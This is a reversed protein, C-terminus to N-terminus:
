AGATGELLFERRLAWRLALYALLGVPGLLFTFLLCPIMLWRSIGLRQSDRVEWSGVFLDFALYHVWGALLMWRNEFVLSIESLSGFGGVSSGLYAVILVTYLVGLLVPIIVGSILGASYRWGPAILLLLWGPLVITSAIEFWQDPTM